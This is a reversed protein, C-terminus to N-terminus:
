QTLYFSVPVPVVLNGLEGTFEEIAVPDIDRVSGQLAEKAAKMAAADLMKHGSSRAVAVSILEGSESMTVDLELRGELNRRVARKPYRIKGYVLSVLLRHFENLRRSYDQGGLSLVSSQAALLGTGRSTQRAGSLHSGGFSSTHQTALNANTSPLQTIEGTVGRVTTSEQDTSDGDVASGGSQMAVIDAKNALSLENELDSPVQAVTKAFMSNLTSDTTATTERPRSGSEPSRNAAAGSRATSNPSAPEGAAVSLTKEATTTTQTDVRQAQTPQPAPPDDAKTATIAEAQLVQEAAIKPAPELWSAVENKRKTSYQHAGLAALLTPNVTDNLLEQRFQSSSGKEGVWGQLFYDAIGPQESRALEVNNLLAITEGLRNLRIELSDGAYLSSPVSSIIANAFDNTAPSPAQGTALESQLLLGGLLSRISTRRAVVRFEMIRPGKIQAPDKPPKTGKKLFVGGLYIDRGTEQHLGLGAIDYGGPAAACLAASGLFIATLLLAVIPHPATRGM